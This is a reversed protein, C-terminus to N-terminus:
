FIDPHPVARCRSQSSVVPRGVRRLRARSSPLTEVRHEAPHEAPAADEHRPAPRRQRFPSSEVRGPSDRRLPRRATLLGVRTTGAVCRRGRSPGPGRRCSRTLSSCTDGRGVFHPARVAGNEGVRSFRPERLPVPGSPRNSTAPACTVWIELRGKVLGERTEYFLHAWTIQKQMQYHILFSSFCQTNIFFRGAKCKEFICYSLMSVCRRSFTNVAYQIHLGFNSNFM